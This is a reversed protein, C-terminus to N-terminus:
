SRAEKWKMVLDLLEQVEDADGAIAIVIGDCGPRIETSSSGQMEGPKLNHSNDPPHMAMILPKGCRQAVYLLTEAADAIPSKIPARKGFGKTM